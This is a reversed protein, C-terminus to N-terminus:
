PFTKAFTRPLFQASSTSDQNSIQRAEEKDQIKELVKKNDIYNPLQDTSGFMSHFIKMNSYLRKKPSSIKSDGILDILIFRGRIVNWCNRM